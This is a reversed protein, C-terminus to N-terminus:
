ELKTSHGRHHPPKAVLQPRSQKLTWRHRNTFPTRSTFFGLGVSMAVIGLIIAGLGTTKRFLMAAGGIIQAVSTVVIFAPTGQLQWNSILQDNLVLGAHFRCGLNSGWAADSFQVGSRM